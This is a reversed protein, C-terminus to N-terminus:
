LLSIFATLSLPLSNYYDVGKRKTPKPKVFARKIKLNKFLYPQISQLLLSNKIFDLQMFDAAAPFSSRLVGIGIIDVSDPVALQDITNRVIVGCEIILHHTLRPCLVARCLRLVNQRVVVALTHV